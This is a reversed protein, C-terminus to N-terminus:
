VIGGHDKVETTSIPAIPNLLQRLLEIKGKYYEASQVHALPSQPDCVLEARLEVLQTLYDQMLAIQAPTLSKLIAYEEEPTFDYRVYKVVPIRGQIDM